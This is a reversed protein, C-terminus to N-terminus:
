LYPSKLNVETLSLVKIHGKYFVKKESQQYFLYWILSVEIYDWM